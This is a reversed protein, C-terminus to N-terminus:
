KNRRALVAFQLFYKSLNSHNNQPDQLGCVEERIRALEKLRHSWRQDGLTLDLLELMRDFAKRMHEPNNKRKWSLVREYESGINGLQEPLSLTSWRGRALDQHVAQTTM